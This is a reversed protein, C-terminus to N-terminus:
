GKAAAYTQCATVFQATVGALEAERPQAKGNAAKSTDYDWVAQAVPMAASDPDTVFVRMTMRDNLLEIEAQFPLPLAADMAAQVNRQDAPRFM